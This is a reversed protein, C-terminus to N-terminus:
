STEDEFGTDMFGETNDGHRNDSHRRNWGAVARAVEAQNVPSQDGEDIDRPEINYMERVNENKAQNSTNNVHNLAPLPNRVSRPRYLPVNDILPTICPVMLNNNTALIPDPTAPIPVQSGAQSISSQQNPNQSFHTVVEEVNFARRNQSQLPPLICDSTSLSNMVNHDESLNSTQNCDEAFNQNLLPLIPSEGVVTKVQTDEIDGPHTLPSTGLLTKGSHQGEFALAAGESPPSPPSLTFQAQSQLHPVRGIAGQRDRSATIGPSIRKRCSVCVTTPIGKPVKQGTQCQPCSIATDVSMVRSNQEYENLNTTDSSKAQMDGSISSLPNTPSTGEAVLPSEPSNLPTCPFGQSSRLSSESQLSPTDSNHATQSLLESPADAVSNHSGSDATQGSLSEQDLLVAQIQAFHKDCNVMSSNTNKSNPRAKHRTLVSETAAPQETSSHTACSTECGAQFVNGRQNRDESKPSMHNGGSEPSMNSEGLSSFDNMSSLATMEITQEDSAFTQGPPSSSMSDSPLLLAQQSTTTLPSLTSPTLLPSDENIGQNITTPEPTQDGGAEIISQTAIQTPPSTCQQTPPGIDSEDDIFCPLYFYRPLYQIESKIIM